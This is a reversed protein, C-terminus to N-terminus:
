PNYIYPYISTINPTVYPCIPTINPTKLGVSDWKGVGINTENESCKFRQLPPMLRKLPLNPALSTLKKKVM